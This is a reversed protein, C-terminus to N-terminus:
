SRPDSRDSFALDADDVAEDVVRLVLTSREDDRSLGADLL